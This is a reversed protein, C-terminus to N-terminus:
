RGGGVGQDAGLRLGLVRAVPRQPGLAEVAEDPLLGGLGVQPHEDAGRALARLREVM